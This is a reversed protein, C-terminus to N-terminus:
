GRRERARAVMLKELLNEATIYGVLRGDERTVGIAVTGGQLLDLGRDLHDHEAVTPIEKGMADAVQTEGGREALAKIIGDRNLVGVLRGADDVIPFDTQSTEILAQAADKVSAQPPLARYESIMVDRAPVDFLVDRMRAMGAESGAAFFIFMAILLLIFNGAALAALGLLIAAVRGITAATETGRLHGTFRALIARLVRGGDLPFAPLLNFLLLAVNAWALQALLSRPTLVRIAQEPRPLGGLAIVLVLAIILTVAPGALAIILEQRPEDPIRELKSVGGIPLLVMEPTHVGFRRAAFVHGFEHLVVCFFLLLFFSVTGVAAPPGGSAWALAGLWALFLLFTLHLRVKTGAISGLSISWRM